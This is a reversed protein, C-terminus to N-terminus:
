KIVVHIGGGILTTDNYQVTQISRYYYTNEGCVSEELSWHVTLTDITSSDYELLYPYSGLIQQINFQWGRMATNNSYIISSELPLTNLSDILYIVLSPYEQELLNNGASDELVIILEDNPPTFCALDPDDKSCAIICCVCTFILSIKKILSISFM